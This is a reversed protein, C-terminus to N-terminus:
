ALLQVLASDVDLHDGEYGLPVAEYTRELFAALGAADAALLASGDPSTLRLMVVARGDEVTPWVRVDGEGCEAHLGDSLLDRGLVWSISETGARFTAEVAYPDCVEYRLTATLLLGQDGPVVLRLDVDDVVSAHPQLM